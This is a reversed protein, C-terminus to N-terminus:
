LVPRCVRHLEGAGEHGAGVPILETDDADAPVHGLAALALVAQQPEPLGDLGDDVVHRQRQEFDLGVSRNRRDAAVGQRPPEPPGDGGAVGDSRDEAVSRLHTAGDLGREVALETM